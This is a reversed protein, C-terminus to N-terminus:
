GSKSSSLEWQPLSFLVQQASNCLIPQTSTPLRSPPPFSPFCKSMQLLYSCTWLTLNKRPSVQKETPFAQLSIYIPSFDVPAPQLFGLYNRWSPADSNVTLFGSTSRKDGLHKLVLYFRVTSTPEM